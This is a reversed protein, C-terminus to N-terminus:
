QKGGRLRATKRAKHLSEAIYQEVTWEGTIVKEQNALGRKDMKLGDLAVSANAQRFHGHWEEQEELTRM